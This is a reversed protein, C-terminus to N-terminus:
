IITLPTSTGYVVDGEVKSAYRGARIAFSAFSRVRERFSMLNSYRVPVWHVHIGAEMTTFWAESVIPERYSTIVHVEHGMQVLRKAMDFSRTGGPKDPTNFYQHLYLIKM